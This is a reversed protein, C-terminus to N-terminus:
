REASLGLDFASLSVEVTCRAHCAAIPLSKLGGLRRACKSRGNRRAIPVHEPFALDHSALLQRWFGIFRYVLRGGFKGCKLVPDLYEIVQIHRLTQSLESVHSIHICLFYTPIQNHACFQFSVHFM